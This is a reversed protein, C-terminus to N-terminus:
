AISRLVLFSGGPTSLSLGKTYQPTLPTLLRDLWPPYLFFPYAEAESPCFTKVTIEGHRLHGHRPRMIRQRRWVETVEHCEHLPTTVECGNGLNSHTM